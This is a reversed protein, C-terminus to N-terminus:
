KATKAKRTFGFIFQLVTLIIFFILLYVINGINPQKSAFWFWQYDLSSYIWYIIALAISSLANIIAFIWLNGNEKKALYIISWVLSWVGWLLAAVTVIWYFVTAFMTEIEEEYYTCTCKLM